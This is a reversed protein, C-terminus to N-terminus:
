NGKFDNFFGLSSFMIDVESFQSKNYLPKSFMIMNLISRDCFFINEHHVLPDCPWTVLMFEHKVYHMTYFM